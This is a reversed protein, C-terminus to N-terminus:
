IEGGKKYFVILSSQYEYLLYKGFVKDFLFTWGKKPLPKGADLLWHYLDLIPECLFIYRYTKVLNRLTEEIDKAHHLGFTITAMEGRPLEKDLDFKEVKLGKEKAKSILYENHDYGTIKKPKFIRIIRLTNGGDGCALDSITRGCFEKPAKSEIFEFIHDHKRNYFCGFFRYGINEAIWERFRMLKM